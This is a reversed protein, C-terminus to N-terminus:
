EYEGSEHAKMDALEAAEKFSQEHTLNALAQLERFVKAYSHNKKYGIEVNELPTYEAKYGPHDDSNEISESLKTDKNGVDLKDSGVKM